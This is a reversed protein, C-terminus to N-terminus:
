ISRRDFNIPKSSGNRGYRDYGYRETMLIQKVPFLLYKDFLNEEVFTDTLYKKFELFDDYENIDDGWIINEFTENFHENDDEIFGDGLLEKIISITEENIQSVLDSLLIKIGISAIATESKGM